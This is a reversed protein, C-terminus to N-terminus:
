APLGRRTVERALELRSKMGLKSLASAVRWKATHHSVFLRAGIEANTLGEAVLAAVEREGRTLSDWGSAPRGRRRGKGGLAYSVAAGPTLSAGERSAQEFAAQGMAETARAVDDDYGPQRVAPRAYGRSDRIARAAGILRAAREGNGKEAALGALAELSDVVHAADMDREFGDLAQSHHAEAQELDGDHRHAGGLVAQAAARLRVDAPGRAGALVEEALERARGPRGRSLAVEALGLVAEMVRTGDQFVQHAKDFQSAAEDLRDQAWALRGAACLCAVLGWVSRHAQNLGLAERGLSDAMDYHGYAAAVQGLILSASAIGEPNGVRHAVARGERLLERAAEHDGRRWAAEGALTLLVHLSGPDAGRAVGLGETVAVDAAAPDGEDLHVRALLGLAHALCWSDGAVRATIISLELAATVSARNEDDLHKCNGLLLLTRAEGRLDGAERSLELAETLASNAKAMDGRAMVLLLGYGWLAKARVEPSSEPSRRLAEELRIGGDRYWGRLRWYLALAGTLRLAIENSPMEFAWRLTSHLNSLEADLRDLWDVQDPGTLHREAEEALALCWAADRHVANWGEGTAALRDRAYERVTELLRYRAPATNTDAVVLSKAVLSALLDFLSASTIEDWVCVATVAELTVPQPFVSLRRLLVREPPSLLEHSWDIAEELTTHRAGLPRNARGLLSFRRDLGSAIEPASLVGMRAAALEIALPLGDLRRCIEIVAPATDIGLRFGDNVLATRTCFLQVAETAAAVDLPAGPEPLTLPAVTWQHEGSVGLPRLSTSVVRLGECSELLTQAATGCAEALHECNDLVVLSRRGHLFAAVIETLAGGAHTRVGLGRAITPVVEDTDRVGALDVWWSDGGFDDALDAAVAVALRTKGVGPPGVLTTLRQKRVVEVLEARERERGVFSSVPVPIHRPATGTM